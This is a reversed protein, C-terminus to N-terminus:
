VDMRPARVFDPVEAATSTCYDSYAALIIHTLATTATLPAIRGYLEQSVFGIHIDGDEIYHSLEETINM